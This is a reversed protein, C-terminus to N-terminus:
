ILGGETSQGNKEGTMAKKNGYNVPADINIRM